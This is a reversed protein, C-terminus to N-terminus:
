KLIFFSFYKLYSCDFILVEDLLLIAQFNFSTKALKVYVLWRLLLVKLHPIVEMLDAPPSHRHPMKNIALQHLPRLGSDAAADSPWNAQSTYSLHILLLWPFGDLLCHEEM